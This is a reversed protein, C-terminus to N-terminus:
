TAISKLVKQIGNAVSTLADDMNSHSMIAVGKDPLAQLKGFPLDHWLCNRAIIPILKAEGKSHRELARTLEKQYCFESNVFDASILLLIVDAMDFKSWIESEWEDGPKILQDHWIEIQGTRCLPQLHLVLQRHTEADAHSYSVFVKKAQSMTVPLRIPGSNGQVVAIKGDRKLRNKTNNYGTEQWGLETRLMSDKVLSGPSDQLKEIAAMFREDQTGVKKRAILQAM